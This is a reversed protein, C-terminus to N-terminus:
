APDQQAPKPRKYVPVTSCPEGYMISRAYPLLGKTATIYAAEPIDVGDSCGKLIVREDQYASWDNSELTRVLMRSQFEPGTGYYIDEAYPQAHKTILMYAWKPVIANTSCSICLVKCELQTWDFAKMSQRFEKEKLLLGRFLFEKIDFAFTQVDTIFTELKITVLGSAAVRNVLKTETTKSM